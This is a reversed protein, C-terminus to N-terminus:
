EGGTLERFRGLFLLRADEREWCALGGEIWPTYDNEAAWKHAWGADAMLNYAETVCERYDQERVSEPEPWPLGFKEAIVRQVREELAVYKPFLPKLPAPMDVLYAEAADHLLGWLADAEPVDHSVNVSHQAVTFIPEDKDTHARFRATGSLSTAIDEIAIDDPTIKTPDVLHGSAVEFSYDATGSIVAAAQDLPVEYRTCAVDASGRSNRYDLMDDLAAPLLGRDVMEGTHVAALLNWAAATLHDEDRLGELFQFTHRLASDLYRSLPQGKEWNREGYKAAGAEMHAALRRLAIPSLLDYRGKGERTDRVSGTSHQERKGSDKIEYM